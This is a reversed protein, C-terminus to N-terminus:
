STTEKENNLDFSPVWAQSFAKGAVENQSVGGIGVELSTTRINSGLWEKRITAMISSSAAKSACYDAGGVYSLKNAISGVHFFSGASAKLFPFSEKLVNILGITNVKFVRETQEILKDKVHSKGIAIGASYFVVNLTANADKLKQFFATVAKNDTVDLHNDGSRSAEIVNYGVASFFRKVGAGYGSSGGIILITKM